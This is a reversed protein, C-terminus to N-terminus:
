GRVARRANGATDMETFEMWPGGGTRRGPKVVGTAQGRYGTGDWLAWADCDDEEHGAETTPQGGPSIGM